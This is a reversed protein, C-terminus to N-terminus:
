VADKYAEKTNIKEVIRTIVNPQDELFDIIEKIKATGGTAFTYDILLAENPQSKDKYEKPNPYGEQAAQM